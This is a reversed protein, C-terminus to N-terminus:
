QNAVLHIEATLAAVIPVVPPLKGSLTSSSGLRAGAGVGASLLPLGLTSRLWVSIEIAQQLQRASTRRPGRTPLSSSYRISKGEWHM